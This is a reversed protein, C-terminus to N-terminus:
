GKSRMLIVIFGIGFVTFIGLVYFLMTLTNSKNVSPTKRGKKNGNESIKKDM